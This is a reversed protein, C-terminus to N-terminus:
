RLRKQTNRWSVAGVYASTIWRTGRLPPCLTYLVLLRRVAIVGVMLSVSHCRAKLVQPVVRINAVGGEEMSYVSHREVMRVRLRLGRRQCGGGEVMSLRLIGDWGGGGTPVSGETNPL